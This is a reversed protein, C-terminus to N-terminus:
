EAGLANMANRINLACTYAVVAATTAVAVKLVLLGYEGLSGGFAGEATTTGAKGTPDAWNVPDGNAYLYKHLTKPNTLDGDEPDRSLFRGTLPNYYRARLHGAGMKRMCIM